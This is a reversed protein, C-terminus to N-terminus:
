AARVHFEVVGLAGYDKTVSDYTDALDGWASGEIAQGEGISMPCLGEFKRRFAERLGNASKRSDGYIRIQYALTGDKAPGGDMTPDGDDGVLQYVLCPNRTGEPAADPFMKGQFESLTAEAKVTAVFWKLLETPDM